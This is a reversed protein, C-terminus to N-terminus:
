PDKLRAPLSEAKEVVRIIPSPWFIVTIAYALFIILLMTDCFPQWAGFPLQMPMATHWLVKWYLSFAIGFILLISGIIVALFLYYGDDFKEDDEEVMAKYLTYISRFATIICAYAFLGIFLTTFISPSPYMKAVLPTALEVNQASVSFLFLAILSNAAILATAKDHRAPGWHDTEM